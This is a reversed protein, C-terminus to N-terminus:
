VPRQDRVVEQLVIGTERDGQEFGSFPSVARGAPDTAEGHRLDAVAQVLHDVVVPDLGCECHVLSSLAGDM